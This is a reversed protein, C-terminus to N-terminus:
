PGSSRSRAGALAKACIPSKSKALAITMRIPRRRRAGCLSPSRVYRLATSPQALPRRFLRRGPWGPLLDAVAPNGEGIWREAEYRGRGIASLTRLYDAQAWWFNGGFFPTYGFEPVHSWDEPRLWHCGVADVHRLLDLPTRGQAIIRTMSRRWDANFDTPDSAGKTHAYLVPGRYPDRGLDDHLRELTVQEFGTEAEVYDVVNDVDCLYSLHRLYNHVCSRNKSSGVIGVTMRMPPLSNLARMHEQAPEKWAGDAYVHYYHRIM